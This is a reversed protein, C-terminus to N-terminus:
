SQSVKEIVYKQDLYNRCLPWTQFRTHIKSTLDSIPLPNLSGPPVSGGIIELLTGRAQVITSIGHHYRQDRVVLGRDVLDGGGGRVGMRLINKLAM